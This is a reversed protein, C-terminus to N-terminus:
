SIKAQKLNEKLMQLKKAVTGDVIQDGMRIKVGGLLAPDVTLKLLVQKGTSSSLSQALTALDEESIERAAFLEAQRIGRSEDAMDAFENYIYELYSERRKDIVMLLFNMTMPSLQDAFVKQILEKKAKAPVLLHDMYEKMGEVENITQIVKEMEVQYADIKDAERAISFFAEAYRRAVSKNLM